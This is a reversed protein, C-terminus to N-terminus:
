LGSLYRFELITAESFKFHQILRFFIGRKGKYSFMSYFHKTQKLHSRRVNQFYAIASNAM